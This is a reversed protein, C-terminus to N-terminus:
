RKIGLEKQAELLLSRDAVQSFSVPTTMKARSLAENIAAQITEDTMTGDSSFAPLFSEFMGAASARDMKIWKSLIDISEEKHEKIFRLGEITGKMMRKVQSGSNQLKKDAVVVANQPLKTYELAWSLIKYGKKVGLMNAPPSGIIADVKGNELSALGGMDGGTPVLNVDKGPTLGHHRTMVEAVLQTTSGFYTIGLAKGRLEAISKIEPKTMLFFVLRDQTMMVLKVPIGRIAASVGQVATIAYDLDGTGLANMAVALSIHVHESTLGYKSYFGKKEALVTPLFAPSFSSIGIRIKEQAFASGHHISVLALSMLVLGGRLLITKCTVLFV